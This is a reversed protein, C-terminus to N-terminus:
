SLGDWREPEEVQDEIWCDKGLPPTSDPQETKPHRIEYRVGRKLTEATGDDDHEQRGPQHQSDQKNRHTPFRM